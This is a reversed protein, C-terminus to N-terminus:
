RGEAAKLAAVAKLCEAVAKTLDLADQPEMTALEAELEAASALNGKEAGASLAVLRRFGIMALPGAAKWLEVAEDIRGANSLLFARKISEIDSKMGDGRQPSQPQQLAARV